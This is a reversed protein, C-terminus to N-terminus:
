TLRLTFVCHKKTVPNALQHFVVEHHEVPSTIVMLVDENIHHQKFSNFDVSLLPDGVEVHKGVEVWSHFGEGKLKVSDIGVHILIEHGSETVIGLAHLTPFIMKIIGRVPAYIISDSPEIALGPGIYGKSFVPDNVSTLPKIQGSVCAYVDLYQKKTFLNFM